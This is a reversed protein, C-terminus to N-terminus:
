EASEKKREFLSMNRSPCDDKLIQVQKDLENTKKDMSTLLNCFMERINIIKAHYENLEQKKQSLENEWEEYEKQKKLDAQQMLSAAYRKAELLTSGIMLQQNKQAEYQHRLEELEKELRNIKHQYEEENKKAQADKETMRLSFEEELSTVYEYVGNKKYGFLGTKLEDLRM